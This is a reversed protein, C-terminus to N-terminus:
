EVLYNATIEYSKYLEWDKRLICLDIEPWRIELSELKAKEVWIYNGKLPMSQKLDESIVAMYVGFADDFIVKNDDSKITKLHFSDFKFDIYPISIGVEAYFIRTLADELKEGFLPTGSPLNYYTVGAKLHKKILYADGCKIVFGVFFVKFIDDKLDSKQFTNLINLGKVTIFYKDDKKEILENSILQKLHFVINDEADYGKTLTAYPRGNEEALRKILLKQLTHM